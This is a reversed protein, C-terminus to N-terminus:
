RVTEITKSSFHSEYYHLQYKVDPKILANNAPILTCGIQKIITFHYM